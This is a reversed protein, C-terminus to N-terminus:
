WQDLQWAFVLCTASVLRGQVSYSLHVLSFELLHMWDGLWPSTQHFVFVYLSMIIPKDSAIKM